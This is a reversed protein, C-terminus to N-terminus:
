VEVMMEVVELTVITLVAVTLALEELPVTILALEEVVVFNSTFAEKLTVFDIEDGGEEGM